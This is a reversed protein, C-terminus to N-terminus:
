SLGSWGLTRFIRVLGFEQCHQGVVFGHCHQSVLLGSLGSWSFDQCDQGVLLGSLGSLGLARVITVLWLSMVIRVLSLGSWGLNRITRVM